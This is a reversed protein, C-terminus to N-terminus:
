TFTIAIIAIIIVVIIIIVKILGIATGIIWYKIM